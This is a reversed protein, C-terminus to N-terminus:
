FGLNKRTSRVCYEQPTEIKALIQVFKPCIQPIPKNKGYKRQLTKNLFTRIKSVGTLKVVKPENEFNNIIIIKIQCYM